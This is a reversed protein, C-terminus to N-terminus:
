EDGNAKAETVDFQASPERFILDTIKPDDKAHGYTRFIHEPSDWGGWKAITVPDVGRHLLTTAFGHRCSHFSLQRIGARRATREWSRRPPVRFGFVPDTRQLNALAVLLRDQIHAKREKKVKTQRITVLREQFDIDDWTVALAERIRAGTAFMFCALAGLEPSAYAMFADLWELTVPAREKREVKFRRMTLKHCHGLEAAHNIVALTPVIVARNRTAASVSPFMEVAAQAIRGANIESVKIERWYNEVPALFRDGKEAKRYLFAAQVFTLAKGPDLHSQFADTEAKNAIRQAVAKSATKTSRHLERGAVTGRYYWVKGGPRKYLTLPM